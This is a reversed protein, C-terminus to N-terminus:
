SPESILPLRVPQAAGASQLEPALDDAVNDDQQLTHNGSITENHEAESTIEGESDSDSDSDSNPDSDDSSSSAIDMADGEAEAEPAVVDPNAAVDAPQADMMDEDVDPPEYVEEDETSVDESPVPIATEAQPLQANQDPTDTVVAPEEPEYEEEDESSVSMEVEGGESPSQANVPDDEPQIQATSMVDLTEISTPEVAPAPSYLDEDDLPTALDQADSTVVNAAPIDQETVPELADVKLGSTVPQVQAEGSANITGIIEPTQLLTATDPERQSARGLGPLHDHREAAAEESVLPDSAAMDNAEPQQALASGADKAHDTSSASDQTVVHDLIQPEPSLQREIEDKKERMEAHSMGETDVGLNELESTLQEKDRAIKENHAKIM